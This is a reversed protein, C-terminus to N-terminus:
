TVTCSQDGLRFATPKTNTGSWSATFGFSVSAGKAVTGNWGVNRATVATGSQAAEANWAQGLRQGDAFSWTLSWGTWPGTGTNTLQVEGQFGGSWQSTVKYTV